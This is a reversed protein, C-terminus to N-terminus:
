ALRACADCFPYRIFRRCEFRYSIPFAFRLTRFEWIDGLLCQSTSKLRFEKRRFIGRDTFLKAKEVFECQYSEIPDQRM